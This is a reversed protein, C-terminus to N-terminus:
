VNDRSILDEAARVILALYGALSDQKVVGVEKKFKFTRMCELRKEDLSDIGM